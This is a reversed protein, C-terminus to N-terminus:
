NDFRQRIQREDIILGANMMTLECKEKDTLRLNNSDSWVMNVVQRAAYLGLDYKVAIYMICSDYITKPLIEPEVFEAEEEDDEEQPYRSWSKGYNPDRNWSM